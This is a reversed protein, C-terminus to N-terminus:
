LMDCIHGIWSLIIYVMFLTNSEQARTYREDMNLSDPDNNKREIINESNRFKSVVLITTYIKCAM